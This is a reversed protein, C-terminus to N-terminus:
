PLESTETIIGPINVLFSLAKGIESGGEDIRYQELVGNRSLEEFMGSTKVWGELRRSVVGATTYSTM